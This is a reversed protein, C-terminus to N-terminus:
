LSGHSVVSVHLFGCLLVLTRLEFAVCLIPAMKLCFDTLRCILCFVSALSVTEWNMFFIVTEIKYAIVLELVVM